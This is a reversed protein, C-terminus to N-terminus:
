RGWPSSDAALELTTVGDGRRERLLEGGISYRPAAAESRAAREVIADVLSRVMDLRPYAAHIEAQRASALEARRGFDLGVGERTLYTLLGRREAIGPSTHLAIAEWVRDVDAAPVRHERLVAAALDAGEVEFRAEGKALDGTGLDHLVTAAFLLDRDYAADELCGEHEAVLQAFLFSRVSHNFVPTTECGRAASVVAEAMPGTPLELSISM